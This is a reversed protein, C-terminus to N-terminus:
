HGKSDEGRGDNMARLVKIMTICEQVRYDCKSELVRGSGLGQLLKYHGNALQVCSATGDAHEVAAVV